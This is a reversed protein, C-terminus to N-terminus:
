ITNWVYGSIFFLRSYYLGRAKLTQQACRVANQQPGPITKWKRSIEEHSPMGSAASLIQMCTFGVLIIYLNKM